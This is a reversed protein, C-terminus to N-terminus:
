VHLASHTRMLQHRREWDVVGHVTEGVEPTQGVLTHWVDDSEKRVDIVASRNLTGLDHPQGGGTAYFSTRDLAVREGDVAVVTADFERQYADRLFLLETMGAFSNAGNVCRM